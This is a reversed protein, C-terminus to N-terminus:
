NIYSKNQEKLFSENKFNYVDMTHYFNGTRYKPLKLVYLMNPPTIKYQNYLKKSIKNKRQKNNEDLFVVFYNFLEKDYKSFNLGIKLKVFESKFLQSERYHKDAFKKQKNHRLFYFGFFAGFLIITYIVTFTKNGNLVNTLPNSFALIAIGLIFFMVTSVVFLPSDHDTILYKLKEDTLYDDDIISKVSKIKIELTKHIEELEQNKQELLEEIEEQSMNSVDIYERKIEEKKNITFKM